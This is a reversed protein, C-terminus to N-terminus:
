TLVAAVQKFLYPRPTGDPLRLILPGAPDVRAISAEFIRLTATDLWKYLKGDNRWLLTHYEDALPTTGQHRDTPATFGKDALPTTATLANEATHLIETVVSSLLTDLDYPHGALQAMSVPNPASSRFITQNVNIGIGAISRTILSGSIANEILIGVMKRNGAYIDNPWKVRVDADPPLARRLARCVGVAVAMSLEFQRAAPWQQPRLILSFTLNAGPESEWSNGRQGRGATQEHATVVTGHPTEDEPLAAAYSMTSPCTDVHIRNM